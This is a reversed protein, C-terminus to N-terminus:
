RYDWPRFLDRWGRPEELDTDPHAPVDASIIVPESTQPPYKKQLERFGTSFLVGVASVAGFLLGAGTVMGLMIVGAGSIFLVGTFWINDFVLIFGTRIISRISDNSRILLPFTVIGTLTVLLLAWLMGGSLIASVWPWPSEARLYFILNVSLVIFCIGYIGCLRVSRWYHTRMGTFFDRISVDQYDAIRSTVHFLGAMSAPLTFLPLACVVWLVNVVILTGVYDYTNWFWKRYTSRLRGAM